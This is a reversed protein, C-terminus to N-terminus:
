DDFKKGSFIRIMKVHLDDGSLTEGVACRIQRKHRATLLAVVASFEVILKDERYIPV